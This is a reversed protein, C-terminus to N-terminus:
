VEKSQHEEQDLKSRNEQCMLLMNDATIFLDMHICYCTVPILYIVIGIMWKWFTKYYVSYAYMTCNFYLNCLPVIVSSYTKHMQVANVVKWVTIWLYESNEWSATKFSFCWLLLSSVSTKYFDIHVLWEYSYCGTVSLKLYNYM